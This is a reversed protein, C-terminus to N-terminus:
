KQFELLEHFYLPPDDMGLARMLRLELPTFPEYSYTAVRMWAGLQAAFRADLREPSVDHTNRLFWVTRIGPDSLWHAVKEQAGPDETALPEPGNGLAYRLGIIDSNSSDVLVAAHGAVSGARIRAGIEAMPLPYQKNRFGELHFYCWIGSLSAAIMGWMAIRGARRHAAAGAIFFTLFLPFCFIMRAPIFPYAVWRTVGLFGVAAAAVALWAVERNRRLGPLAVILVLPVLLAGLLLVPDPIAEGMTFSMAWYALKLVFESAGAGTLAYGVHHAGWTKLQPILWAMWPLLALATLADIAVADLWRRRRALVLNAAALLGIGPVYHTYIAVVLLTCVIALNARSRKEAFRLIYTAAMVGLLLQLSYSRSMRGYLVLFPSLTWLTLLWWRAGIAFRRAWLRDAAYTSALTFLVSLTRAQVTWALGLPLRMWCWLLLFYLPPHLGSAPIAIAQALPGHMFLLTDAEDFWPSLLDLHWFLLLAELPLLVALPRVSLWTL